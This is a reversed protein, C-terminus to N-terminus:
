MFCMQARNRALGFIGHGNSDPNQISLASFESM